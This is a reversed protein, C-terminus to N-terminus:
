DYALAEWGGGIEIESEFYQVVLSPYTHGETFLTVEKDGHLEKLEQLEEILETVTM